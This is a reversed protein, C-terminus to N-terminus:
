KAAQSIKCTLKPQLVYVARSLLFNIPLSVEPQLSCGACTPATFSTKKRLKRKRPRLSARFSSGSRVKEREKEFAPQQRTAGSTSQVRSDRSEVPTCGPHLKAWTTRRGTSWHVSSAKLCNKQMSKTYNKVRADAEPGEINESDIMRFQYM